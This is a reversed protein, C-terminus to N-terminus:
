SRQLNKQEKKGARKKLKRGEKKNKISWLSPHFFYQDSYVNSDAFSTSLRTIDKNNFKGKMSMHRSTGPKRPGNRCMISVWDFASYERLLICSVGETLHLISGRDFSVMLKRVLVTFSVLHPYFSFATRYSSINKLRAEYYFSLVFRGIFVFLLPNCSPDDTERVKM